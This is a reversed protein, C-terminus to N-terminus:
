IQNIEKTVTHREYGHQERISSSCVEKSCASSESKEVKRLGQSLYDKAWLESLVLAFDSFERSEREM